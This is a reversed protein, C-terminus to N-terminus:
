VSNLGRKKKSCDRGKTEVTHYEQTEKGARQSWRSQRGHMKGEIFEFDTELSEERRQM